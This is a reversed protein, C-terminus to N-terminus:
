GRPSGLLRLVAPDDLRDVLLDAAGLGTAPSHDHPIGVAYAGAAKAAAIGTPSDELVLLNSPDVGHRAAAKRYIEPAPKSETVDEACLTFAFRDLLGHRSLLGEAYERRSSTALCIPLKRKGIADLLAFLGATPHVSTDLVAFFRATVDELLEEPTEDLGAMRKLAPFSVHAQKGLMAAMIEPTFDKGKDAMMETIVRHALAETDFMLGDLDFAIARIEPAAVVNM